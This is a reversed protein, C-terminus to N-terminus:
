HEWYVEVHYGDPDQFKVSVLGAEDDFGCIPVGAAQLEAQLSRVEDGTERRFGFHFSALIDTPVEGPHLALDTGEVDRIFITGDPFRRDDHGFRLWRRYFTISRALDAVTLNIHVPVITLRIQAGDNEGRAHPVASSTARQSSTGRRDQPTRHYEV